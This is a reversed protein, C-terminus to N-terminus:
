FFLWINNWVGINIPRHFDIESQVKQFAKEYNSESRGGEMSENDSTGGEFETKTIKVKHGTIYSQSREIGSRKMELQKKSM